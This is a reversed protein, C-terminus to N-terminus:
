QGLPAIIRPETSTFGVRKKSESKFPYRDAFPRAFKSNVAPARTTPSIDFSGIIDFHADRLYKLSIIVENYVTQLPKNTEGLSTVYSQISPLAALADLFEVHANPMAARMTQAFQLRGLDQGGLLIDLAQFISSEGTCFGSLKLWQGRSSYRTSSPYFVGNHSNNFGVVYPKFRLRIVESSSAAKLRAMEGRAVDIAPRLQQLIKELSQSDKKGAAASADLALRLAVGGANEVMLSTIIFDEEEQTGTFSFIVELNSARDKVGPGLPLKRKWNWLVVSSFTLGPEIGLFDSVQRLPIALNPPLVEIPNEYDNPNEHLGCGARAGWIYAHAIYSLASYALRWQPLDNEDHAANFALLPLEDVQKRFEGPHTWLLFPINKALFLWISYTSDKFASAPPNAPLFGNQYNVQFTSTFSEVDAPFSM